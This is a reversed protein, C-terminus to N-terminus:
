EYKFIYWWASKRKWNCVRSISSWHVWLVSIIENASGWLKIFEWKKNFQKIKFRPTKIIKYNLADEYSLWKNLWSIINWRNIWKIEIWESLVHTKWDITVKINNRKNRNQVFNDAWRCNEKCYNWDNDIRDISLWPIYAGIMDRYFDEFDLWLCKIWRWWYDKFHNNKLNNCRHIIWYYIKKLKNKNLEDISIIKVKKDRVCWCWYKSKYISNWRRISNKGCINCKVKFVRQRNLTWEESIITINKIIDWPTINLKRM